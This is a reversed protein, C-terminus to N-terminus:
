LRPYHRPTRRAAGPIRMPPPGGTAPLRDGQEYIIRLTMDYILQLPPNNTNTDLSDYPCLFTQQIMTTSSYILNSYCTDNYLYIQQQIPTM